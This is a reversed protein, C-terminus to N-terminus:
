HGISNVQPQLMRTHMEGIRRGCSRSDNLIWNAVEAGRKEIKEESLAQIWVRAVKPQCSVTSNGEQSFRQKLPQPSPCGRMQKRLLSESRGNVRYPSCCCRDRPGMKQFQVPHYRSFFHCRSICHQSLLFLYNHHTCLLITKTYRFPSATRM